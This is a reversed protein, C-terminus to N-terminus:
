GLAEKAAKKVKRNRFTTARMLASKAFPHESTALAHVAAVRLDVPYHGEFAEGGDNAVTALAAM